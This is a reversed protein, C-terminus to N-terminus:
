AILEQKLAYVDIQEPNVNRAFIVQIPRFYSSFIQAEKEDLHTSIEEGLWQLSKQVLRWDVQSCPFVILCLPLLEHKIVSVDDELLALWIYTQFMNLDRLSSAEVGSSQIRGRRSVHNPYAQQMKKYVNAAILETRPLVKTIITTVTKAQPSYHNTAACVRPWPMCILEETLQIYPTLWLREYADLRSLIKQRSLHLQTTLYGIARPNKSETLVVRLGQILPELGNMLHNFKPLIKLSAAQKSKDTEITHLYDLIPLFIFNDVYANMLYQYIAVVQSATKEAESVDAPVETEVIMEQAELVAADCDVQLKELVKVQTSKRADVSKITNIRSELHGRLPKPLLALNPM